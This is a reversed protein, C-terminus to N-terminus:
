SAALCVTHKDSTAVFRINWHKMDTLKTPDYIPSGNKNPLGIQGCDNNGCVYMEGSHDVFITHSGAAAVQIIKIQPIDSLSTVLQPTAKTSEISLSRRGSTGLGLQGCSDSGWSYVKKNTTSMVTHQSGCSISLIDEFQFNQIPRPSYADEFNGLGLQGCSNLGWTFLVNDTTVAVSHNEGCAILKIEPLGQVLLPEFTNQIKDLRNRQDGQGLQGASNDGLAWVRGEDDLLIAHKVGTAVQKISTGSTFRIVQPLSRIDDKSLGLTGETSSGFAFVEGNKALAFTHSQGFSVPSSVIQVISHERLIKLIVPQTTLKDERLGLELNKNSGWVFVKGTVTLGFSSAGGAAVQVFPVGRMDDLAHKDGHNPKKSGLQEGSDDGFCIVLSRSSPLHKKLLCDLNMSFIGRNLEVSNVATSNMRRLPNGSPAASASATALLAATKTTETTELSSVAEMPRFVGGSVAALVSSKTMSRDQKKAAKQRKIQMLNRFNRFVACKAEKEFYLGALNIREGFGASDYTASDVMSLVLLRISEIDRVKQQLQNRIKQKQSRIGKLVLSIALKWAVVASPRPDFGAASGTVCDRRLERVCEGRTILIKMLADRIDDTSTCEVFERLAKKQRERVTSPQLKWTDNAAKVLRLRETQDSVAKMYLEHVYITALIIIFSTKSTTVYLFDIVACVLMSLTSRSIRMDESLARSFLRTTIGLARFSRSVIYLFILVYVWNYSIYSSTSSSQFGNKLTDNMISGEYLLSTLSLWPLALLGQKHILFSQTAKEREFSVFLSPRSLLFELRRQLPFPLKSKQPPVHDPDFLPTEKLYLHRLKLKALNSLSCRTFAIFSVILIKWILSTDQYALFVALLCLIIALLVNEKVARGRWFIRKWLFEALELGSLVGILYGFVGCGILVRDIAVLLGESAALGFVLWYEKMSGLQKLERLQLLDRIVIGILGLWSIIVFTNVLLEGISWSTSIGYYVLLGLICGVFTSASAYYMWTMSDIPKYLVAYLFIPIEGVLSILIVNKVDILSYLLWLLLFEVFHDGTFFSLWPWVYPSGIEVVFSSFIQFVKNIPSSFVRLYTSFTHVLYM